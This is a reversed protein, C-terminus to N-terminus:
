RPTRGYQIDIAHQEFGFSRYLRLAAANDADVYLHATTIGRAALRAIGEQVLRRGVGQGQLAPEVGVVYFEGLGDELKLWCFGLLDDDDWLMLLDHADFWPASKLSEFHARTVAGQEPHGAFARGNVRLWASEDAGPRFAVTCGGRLSSDVPARLQLLERVPELGHKRALARSAPHDGHAWFLLDGRDLLRELMAAGHGQGRADPDVVFEAETPSVLAAAVDDLWVTEREGNALGILSGDSFPPTGDAALARSIISELPRGPSEPHTSSPRSDNM